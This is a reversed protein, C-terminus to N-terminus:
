REGGKRVLDEDVPEDAYVIEGCFDCKDGDETREMREGCTCLKSM